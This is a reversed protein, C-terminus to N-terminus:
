KSLARVTLVQGDAPNLDVRAPMQKGDLSQSSGVVSLVPQNEEDTQLIYHYGKGRGVSADFGPVTRQAAKLANPSDIQPRQSIVAIGPDHIGDEIAHVIKWDVIQLNLQKDLGPSTYLAQWVRRRGDTRPAQDQDDVDASTLYILAADNSWTQAYKWGTDWAELLTLPRVEVSTATAELQLLVRYNDITQALSPQIRWLGVGFLAIGIFAGLLIAISTSKKM